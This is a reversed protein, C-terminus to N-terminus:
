RIGELAPFVPQTGLWPRSADIAGAVNAEYAPDRVMVELLAQSAGPDSLAYAPVRDAVTSMSEFRRARREIEALAGSGHGRRVTYRPAAPSATDPQGGSAALRRQAEARVEREEARLRRATRRRLEPEEMRGVAQRAGEVAQRIADRVEELSQHHVLSTVPCGPVLRLCERDLLTRASVVTREYHRKLAEAVDPEDEPGPAHTVLSLLALISIYSYGLDIIDPFLGDMSRADLDSLVAGAGEPLDFSECGSIGAMDVWELRDLPSPFPQYDPKLDTVPTALAAQQHRPRRLLPNVNRIDIVGVTVDNGEHQGQIELRSPSRRRAPWRLVVGPEVSAEYEGERFTHTAFFGSVQGSFSVDVFLTPFDYHQALAQLLETFGLEENAPAGGLMASVLLEQDTGRGDAIVREYLPRAAFVPSSDFLVNALARDMYFLRRGDYFRKNGPRLMGPLVSRYRRAQGRYVWEGTPCPEALWDHFQRYWPPRTM